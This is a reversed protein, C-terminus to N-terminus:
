SNHLTNNSSPAVPTLIIKPEPFPKASYTEIIALLRSNQNQLDILRANFNSKEDKLINQLHNVQEQLSIRQAELASLAALRASREKELINQSEAIEISISAKKEEATRKLNWAEEYAEIERVKKFDFVNKEIELKKRALLNKFSFM